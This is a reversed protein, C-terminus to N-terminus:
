LFGSHLVNTQVCKSGFMALITRFNEGKMERLTAESSKRFVSFFILIFLSGYAM